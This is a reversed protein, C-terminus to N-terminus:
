RKPEWPPPRNVRAFDIWDILMALQMADLEAREGSDPLNIKFKGRDLHKCLLVLGGRQFGRIRAYNRRSSIFVFLHGSYFDEGAAMVLASLGDFGKRMDVAGTFLLIRTAISFGLM